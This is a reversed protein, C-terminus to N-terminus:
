DEEDPQLQKKIERAETQSRDRTLFERAMGVRAYWNGKGKFFDRTNGSDDDDTWSVLIQVDSFHERLDAIAREVIEITEKETM